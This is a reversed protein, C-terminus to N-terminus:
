PTIWSNRSARKYRNTAARVISYADRAPASDYPAAAAGRQGEYISRMAYFAVSYM